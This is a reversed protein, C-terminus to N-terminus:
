WRQTLQGVLDKELKEDVRREFGEEGCRVATMVKTQLRAESMQTVAYGVRHQVKAHLDKRNWRHSRQTDGM